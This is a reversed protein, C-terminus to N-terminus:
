GSRGGDVTPSVGAVVAPGTDFRQNGILLFDGWSSVEVPDHMWRKSLQRFSPLPLVVDAAWPMDGSAQVLLTKGPLGFRLVEGDFRVRCMDTDSAHEAAALLQKGLVRMWERAITARPRAQYAALQREWPLQAHARRGEALWVPTNAIPVDRLGYAIWALVQTKSEVREPVDFKVDHLSRGNSFVGSFTVVRQLHLGTFVGAFLEFNGFDYKLAGDEAFQNDLDPAWGCAALVNMVAVIPPPAPFRM